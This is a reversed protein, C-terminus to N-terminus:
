CSLYQVELQVVHYLCTKSMNKSSLGRIGVRGVSCLSGEKIERRIKHMGPYVLLFSHHFGCGFFCRFIGIFDWVGWM